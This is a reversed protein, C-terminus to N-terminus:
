WQQIELVIPTSGSALRACVQGNWGDTQFFDFGNGATIYIPCRTTFNACNDRMRALCVAGGGAPNTVTAGREYSSVVATGNVSSSITVTTPNGNVNTPPLIPSQGWSTSGSALLIPLLLIRLSKQMKM